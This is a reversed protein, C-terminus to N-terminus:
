PRDVLLLRNRPTIAAPITLTWVRRGREKLRTARVVDVALPGDLWGSLAGTDCTELDHCCPLVAVRAGATMAHELVLDTLRGCAHSSVVVDDGSLDVHQIDSARFVVRDRLRPWTEVLAAHLTTASPPLVDDVVLVEPSTDDLLLM